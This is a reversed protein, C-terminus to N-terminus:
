ELGGWAALILNFPKAPLMIEALRLRIGGIKLHFSKQTYLGRWAKAWLKGGSPYVWAVFLGFLDSRNVLSRNSYLGPAPPMEEHTSKSLVGRGYIIVAM